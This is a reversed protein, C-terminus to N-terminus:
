RKRVLLQTPLKKQANTMFIRSVKQKFGPKPAMGGGHKIKNIFNKVVM